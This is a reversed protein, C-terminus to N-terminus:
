HMLFFFYNQCDGALQRAVSAQNKKKNTQKCCCPEQSSREQTFSLSKLRLVKISLSTASSGLHLLASQNIKKNKEMAFKRNKDKRNQTTQNKDTVVPLHSLRGQERKLKLFGSFAFIYSILWATHITTYWKLWGQDDEEERGKRQSAAWSPCATETNTKNYVQCPALTPQRGSGLTCYTCHVKHWNKKGWCHKTKKERIM